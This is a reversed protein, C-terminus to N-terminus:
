FRAPKDLNLSARKAIRFGIPWVVGSVDFGNSNYIIFDIKDNETGTIVHDIDLFYHNPSKQRWAIRAPIESKVVGHKKILLYGNKGLDLDCYWGFIVVAENTPVTNAGSGALLHEETASTFTAYYQHATGGVFNDDPRLERFWFSGKPEGYKIEVDRVIGGAADGEPDPIGKNGILVDKMLTYLDPAEKRLNEIM